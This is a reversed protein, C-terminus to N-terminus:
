KSEGFSKSNTVLTKKGCISCKAVHWYSPIPEKSSQKRGCSYCVLHDTVVKENGEKLLWIENAAERLLNALNESTVPYIRAAEILRTYLNM